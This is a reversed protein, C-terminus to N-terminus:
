PVVGGVWDHQACCQTANATVRQARQAATLTQDNLIAREINNFQAMTQSNLSLQRDNM